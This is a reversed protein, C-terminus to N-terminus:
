YDEVNNLVVSKQDVYLGTHGQREYWSISQDAAQEDSYSQLPYECCECRLIYSTEIYTGVVHPIAQGTLYDPHSITM